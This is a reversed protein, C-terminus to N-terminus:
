QLSASLTGQHASTDFYNNGSSKIVGDQGVSYAYSSSSGEVVQSAILTADASQLGIANGVTRSNSVIMTPPYYASFNGSVFFGAFKNGSAVSDSVFAKITPRYASPDYAVFMGYEGNGILQVREATISGGSGSAPSYMIGHFKNDSATSDSINVISSSIFRFGMVLGRATCNQINLTGVSSAEIGYPGTGSGNITLGRINVVDDASARIEIGIANVASIAAEGVGDNVVSISKTIVLTGYGGADLVAIEGRPATLDHARQLTRCPDGIGCSYTDSGTRSVFTRASQAQAFGALVSLGAAGLLTLVTKMRTKGGASDEACLLYRVFTNPSSGAKPNKILTGSKFGAQQEELRMIPSCFRRGRLRSVSLGM